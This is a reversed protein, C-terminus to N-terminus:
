ASSIPVRMSEKIDDCNTPVYFVSVSTLTKTNILLSSIKQCTAEATAAIAHRQTEESFLAEGLMVTADEAPLGALVLETLPKPDTVSIVGVGLAETKKRRAGLVFVPQSMSETKQLANVASKAKEALANREAKEVVGVINM